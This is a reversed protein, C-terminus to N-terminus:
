GVDGDVMLVFDDQLTVSMWSGFKPMDGNREVVYVSVVRRRWELMRGSSDVMGGTGGCQNGKSMCREERWGEGGEL